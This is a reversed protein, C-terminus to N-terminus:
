FISIQLYFTSSLTFALIDGARRVAVRVAVREAYRAIWLVQPRIRGSDALPSLLTGQGNPYSTLHPHPVVM